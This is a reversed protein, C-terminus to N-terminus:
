LKRMFIYAYSYTCPRMGITTHRRLNKVNVGASPKM